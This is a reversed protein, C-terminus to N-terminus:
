TETNDPRWIYKAQGDVTGRGEISIDELGGGQFLAATSPADNHGFFSVAILDYARPDDAAFLTAGAEL